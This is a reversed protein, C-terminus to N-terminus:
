KEKNAYKAAADDVKQLKDTYKGGTKSDIADTAKDVGDAVKDKNKEALMKVKAFLGVPLEKVSFHDHACTHASM